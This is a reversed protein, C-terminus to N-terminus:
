RRPLEGVRRLLVDSVAGNSRLRASEGSPDLTLRVSEVRVSLSPVCSLSTMEFNRITGGGIEPFDGHGASLWRGEISKATPGPYEPSAKPAVPEQGFAYLSIACFGALHIFRRIQGTSPSSV